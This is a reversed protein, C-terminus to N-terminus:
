GGSSTSGDSAAAEIDVASAADQHYGITIAPPSFSYLRLVPVGGREEARKLLVEDVAMNRAGSAPEDDILLWGGM